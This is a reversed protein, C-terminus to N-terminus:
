VLDIDCALNATSKGGPYQKGVFNTQTFGDFGAEYQSLLDKATSYLPGKNRHWVWEQM